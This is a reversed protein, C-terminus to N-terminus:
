HGCSSCSAAVGCSSGCPSCCSKHGFSTLRGKLGSFVGGCCSSACADCPSCPVEKEVWKAVKHTGKCVETKCECVTVCRTAQYPVQVKKCVTCQVTKCVPVCKVKTVPVVCTETVCKYTCVKKCVPVCEKVIKTKCVPVCTTCKDVVLKKVTKTCPASCATACPNCPDCSSKCGLHSFLGPSAPVECCEWHTSYHTKAVMETYQVTKCKTVYETKDEWCPVKKVVCRTENVTVCEKHYETVQKSVVESVTECKYATYTEQKTVPVRITRTYEYPEDVCELVKVKVTTPAPAAAPAAAPPTAPPAISEAKKDQARALIPALALLAGAFLFKRLGKVIM